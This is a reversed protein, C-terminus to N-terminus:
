QQLVAFANNGGIFLQNGGFAGLKQLDGFRVIDVIEKLRTDAATNRDDTRHMLAQCCILDSLDCTDEVTGGVVNQGLHNM